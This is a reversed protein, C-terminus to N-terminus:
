RILTAKEASKSIGKELDKAKKSMKELFEPTIIHPTILVMLDRKESQIQTRKFLNGVFPINMLLPIGIETTTNYNKTLGGIVISQGDKVLVKNKTETTNETPVDDTVTGESVSPYIDMIIYGDTNIHPTFSLKTGVELFAVEQATSTQSIISNKYGLKSGILIEAKEHNLATVWPSAILDYGIKKEIAQLYANYNGSLIQAYMGMSSAALTITDTALFQVYDSASNASNVKWSAGLETPNTADGNASKLEIIKAEVHVQLPAIDIQGIIKAINRITKSSARVVVLNLKENVSVGEGEALVEAVMTKVDKANAYKLTFKQMPYNENAPASQTNAGASAGEENKLQLFLDRAFVPVAMLLVLLVLIIKKM